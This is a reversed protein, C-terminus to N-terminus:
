AGTDSRLPGGALDYLNLRPCGTWPSGDRINGPNRNNRTGRAAAISCHSIINSYVAIGLSRSSKRHGALGERDNLSRTTNDWDFWLDRTIWFSRDNGSVAESNRPRGNQIQRGVTEILNVNRRVRIARCRHRGHCLSQRYRNLCFRPSRHGVAYLDSGNSAAVTRGIEDRLKRLRGDHLRTWKLGLENDNLPLRRKSTYPRSFRWWRARHDEPVHSVSGTSQIEVVTSIVKPASVVDFAPTKVPSSM